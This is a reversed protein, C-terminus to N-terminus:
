LTGNMYFVMSQDPTIGHLFDSVKSDSYVKMSEMFLSHNYAYDPYYQGANDETVISYSALDLLLGIDRDFFKSHITKLGYERVIKEIVIQTGIRILSCRKSSFKEDPLETGLFYFLFNQNPQTMAADAEKNSHYKSSMIISSKKLIWM